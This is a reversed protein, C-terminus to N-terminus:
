FAPKRSANRDHLQHEPVVYDFGDPGCHKELTHMVRQVFAKGDHPGAFYLPKGQYGFIFNQDCDGPNIDGFIRKAKTYDKHPSFGFDRAYTVASEVLKRVCAAEMSKMPAHDQFRDQMRRYETESVPHIFADKVGLCCTDVLFVAALLTGDTSKRTLLVSGMGRGEEFISEAAWCEHIPSALLKQWGASAKGNVAGRSHSRAKSKATKKAKKKQLRKPDLAM